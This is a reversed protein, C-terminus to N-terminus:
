KLMYVLFTDILYNCTMWFLFIAFTFSFKFLHLKRSKVQKNLLIKNNTFFLSEKVLCKSKRSEYNLGTFGYFSYVHGSLLCQDKVASKKSKNVRRETLASM